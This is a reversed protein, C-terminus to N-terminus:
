VRTGHILENESFNSKRGNPIKNWYPFQIWSREDSIKSPLTQFNQFLRSHFCVAELNISYPSTRSTVHVLIIWEFPHLSFSATMFICIKITIDKPTLHTLKHWLKTAGKDRHHWAVCIQCVPFSLPIWCERDAVPAYHTKNAWFGGILVWFKYLSLLNKNTTTTKIKLM